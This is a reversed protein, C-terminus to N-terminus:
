GNWIVVMSPEPAHGGESPSNGFCLRGRIFRIDADTALVDDHFWAVESRVPLLGVVLASSTAAKRTWPAIKSYPPNMWCREGTWDQALGDTEPTFYRPCLANDPLAAVDVTFGFEADLAAFLNPPTLRIDFDASLHWNYRGRYSRGLSVTIPELPFLTDLM